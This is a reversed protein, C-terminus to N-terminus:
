HLLRLPNSVWQRLERVTVRRMLVSIVDFLHQRESEWLATCKALGRASEWLSDEALRGLRHKVRLFCLISLFKNLTTNRLPMV